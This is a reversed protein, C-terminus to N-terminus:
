KEATEHTIKVFAKAASSLHKGKRYAIFMDRKCRKNDIMYFVAHRDVHLNRLEIGCMLSAGVGNLTMIYSSISQDVEINLHKDIHKLKLLQDMLKGLYTDPTLRIFPLDSFEKLDVEPQDEPSDLMEPPIQYDKLRENIESEAPVCLYVKTTLLNELTLGEKKKLPSSIFLDLTGELTSDVLDQMRGSTIHVDLGPYMGSFTKIVEPLFVYNFASSSGVNLNGHQLGSLQTLKDNLEQELDHNKDMYEFFLKGEETLVIPYRSRDFIEIGYQEETKKIQSSIAPQSVGLRESARSVSGLEAVLTLYQRIDDTIRM